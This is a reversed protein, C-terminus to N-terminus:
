WHRLKEAEIFERIKKELDENGVGGIFLDWGINKWVPRPHDNIGIDFSLNLILYDDRHPLGRAGHQYKLELTFGGKIEHKYINDESIHCLRNRDSKLAIVQRFISM